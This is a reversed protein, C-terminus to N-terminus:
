PQAVYVYRALLDRWNEAWCCEHRYGPVRVLTARSGDTMRAFYSEAVTPPVAEDRAGVFHVQPISQLHRAEDAPNLSRSLPSVGDDTTWRV